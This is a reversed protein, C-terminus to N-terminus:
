NIKRLIVPRFGTREFFRTLKLGALCLLLVSLGGLASGVDPTGWGIWEAVAKGAVAGVFLAFLPLLYVGFSGFVLADEPVGVVVRDGPMLELPSFVQFRVTEETFFKATLSNACAQSCGSCAPKRVRELWVQRGDVEAVFAVEEIM